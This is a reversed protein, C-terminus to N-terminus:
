RPLGSSIRVQRLAFTSAPSLHRSEIWRSRADHVKAFSDADLLPSPMSSAECYAALRVNFVNLTERPSV